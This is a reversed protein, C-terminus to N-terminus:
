FIIQPLTIQQLLRFQTQHKLEMNQVYYHQEKAIEINLDFIDISPSNCLINQYQEALQIENKRM